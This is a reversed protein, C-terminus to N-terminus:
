HYSNRYTKEDYIRPTRNKKKKKLPQKCCKWQAFVRMKIETRKRCVFQLGLTRRYFHVCRM